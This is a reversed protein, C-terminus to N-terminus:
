RAPRGVVTVAGRRRSLSLKQNNLWELHQQLSEIQARTASRSNGGSMGHTYSQAKRAVALDVKAQAIQEEIEQLTYIAM